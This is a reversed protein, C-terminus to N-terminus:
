EISGVYITWVICYESTSGWPSPEILPLLACFPIWRHPIRWRFLHATGTIKTFSPAKSYNFKLIEKDSLDSSLVSLFCLMAAMTFIIEHSTLEVWATRLDVNTCCIGYEVGNMNRLCFHGFNKSPYFLQEFTVSDQISKILILNLIRESM